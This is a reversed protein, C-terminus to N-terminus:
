DKAGFALGAFRNRMIRRMLTPPWARSRARGSTVPGVLATLVIMSAFVGSKIAGEKM